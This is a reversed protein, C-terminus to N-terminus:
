RKEVKGDGGEASLVCLLFLVPTVSRLLSETSPLILPDTLIRRQVSLSGEGNFLRVTEMGRLVSYM